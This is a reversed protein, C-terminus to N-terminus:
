NRCLKKLDRKKWPNRRLERLNKRPKRSIKKKILEVFDQWQAKELEQLAKLQQRKQEELLNKQAKGEQELVKWPNREEEELGM